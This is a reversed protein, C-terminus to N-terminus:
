GGAARTARERHAAVSHKWAFHEYVGSWYMGFFIAFLLEEFPMGLFQIGSLAKLNWVREIYGPAFLRLGQLFIVYYGLFLVGGVWTNVRVDPRCFITAVAGVFMAIIGPYIPNWGLFAFILFTIFPAALAMRHFQHSPGQREKQEVSVAVQGTLANYLVASVGGIGFCFILSEIDFGTKQALHFLSPPNWYRPVFLAQTLGFPMTFLSAWAM